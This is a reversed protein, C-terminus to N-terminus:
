FFQIENKNSKDIQNLMLKADEESYPKFFQFVRYEETILYKPEFKKFIEMAKQNNECWEIIERLELSNDAQIDSRLFM